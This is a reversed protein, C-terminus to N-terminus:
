LTDSRKDRVHSLFATWARNTFLLTPGHPNKSDRVPLGAGTHDDAVELCNGGNNASYSSRRWTQYPRSSTM